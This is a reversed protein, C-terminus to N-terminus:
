FLDKIPLELHDAIFRQEIKKIPTEGRMKKYFTDTSTYEFHENFATKLSSKQPNSLNGYVIEM